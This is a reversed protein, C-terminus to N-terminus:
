FYINQERAASHTSRAVMAACYLRLFWWTMEKWSGCQRSIAKSQVASVMFCEALNPSFFNFVVTDIAIHM